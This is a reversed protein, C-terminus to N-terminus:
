FQQIWRQQSAGLHVSEVNDSVMEIEGQLEDLAVRM